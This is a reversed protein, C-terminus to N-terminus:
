GFCKVHGSYRYTSVKTAFHTDFFDARETPAHDIKTNREWRLQAAVDDMRERRAQRAPTVTPRRVGYPNAKRKGQM